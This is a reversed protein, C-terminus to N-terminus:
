STVFFDACFFCGVIFRSWDSNEVAEPAKKEPIKEFKQGLVLDNPSEFLFPVM